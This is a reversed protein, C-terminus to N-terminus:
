RAPLSAGSALDKHPSDGRPWASVLTSLRRWRLVKRDQQISAAAGDLGKPQPFERMRAVRGLKREPDAELGARSRHYATAIPSLAQWIADLDGRAEHWEHSLDAWAVQFAREQSQARDVPGEKPPAPLAPAKKWKHVMPPAGLLIELRQMAHTSVTTVWWLHHGRLRAQLAPNALM